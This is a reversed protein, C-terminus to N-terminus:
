LNSLLIEQVKHTRQFPWRAVAEPVPCCAVLLRRRPQASLVKDGAEKQLGSQQAGNVTIGRFVLAPNGTGVGVRLTTHGWALDGLM